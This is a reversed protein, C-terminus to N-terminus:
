RKANCVWERLSKVYDFLKEFRETESKLAISLQKNERLLLRNRIREKRFAAQLAILHEQLESKTM